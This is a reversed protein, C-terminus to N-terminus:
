RVETEEGVRPGVTDNYGEGADWVETIHVM